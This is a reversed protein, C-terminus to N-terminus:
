IIHRSNVSLAKIHFKISHRRLTLIYLMLKFEKTWTIHRAAMSIEHYFRLRNLLQRTSLCVSLCVFGCVFVVFCVMENLSAVSAARTPRYANRLCGFDPHSIFPSLDGYLKCLPCVPASFLSM